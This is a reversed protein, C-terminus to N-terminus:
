EQIYRLHFILQECVETFILDFCYIFWMAKLETSCPLHRSLRNFYRNINKQSPLLNQNVGLPVFVQATERLFWQLQCAILQAKLLRFNIIHFDTMEIKKIIRELNLAMFYNTRKANFKAYLQENESLSFYM